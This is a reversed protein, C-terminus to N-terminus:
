DSHQPLAYPPAAVRFVGAADHLLRIVGAKELRMISCDSMATASAMRVSQGALCGEGFFDGAGLIAVM